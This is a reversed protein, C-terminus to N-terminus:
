HVTQRRRTLDEDVAVDEPWVTQGDVLVLGSHVPRVCPEVVDVAGVEVPGVSSGDHRVGQWVGKGNGYKIADQVPGVPLRSGDKGTVFRVWVTYSDDGIFQKRRHTDVDEVCLSLWPTLLVADPTKQQKYTYINTSM